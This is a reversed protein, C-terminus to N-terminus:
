PKATGVAGASKTSGAGATHATRTEPRTTPLTAPVTIGASDRLTKAEKARGTRDLLDALDSATSKSLWDRPGSKKREAALADRLIPEAEAYKGQAVLTSGLGSNVMPLLEGLSARYIKLLERFLKEAEEPKNQRQLLKALNYLDSGIYPNGVALRKRDIELAERDMAVAEDLNSPSVLYLLYALQSLSYAIAPDGVPFAKRNIALAERLMPEAEVVRKQSQLCLGLSMLSKAIEPHGSPFAGRNIALAERFMPEAEAQKNQTELCAGLHTLATAIDPHGAPLVKRDIDLAERCLPEAEAWRKQDKLLDGLSDLDKVLGIYSAPLDKRDIAVAERLLSEAEATKNQPILSWTLDRLSDAIAPHGAPLAKRNLALAERLLPEAEKGGKWHAVFRGLVSLSRAIGPHGAKQSVDVAERFLAEAEDQKGKSYLTIIALYNLADALTDQGAPSAKRGIDVAERVLPEAEAMRNQEILLRGLDNLVLAILPDTAPLAKREIELAEHYLREAEAPKHVIQMLVALSGLSKGIDVHGAPLAQRRIALAKRLHPEAEDYRALSVFANGIASRLSAETVPDLKTGGADLQKVAEEVAQVVTVKDGLVKNPDASNLMNTLFDNISTAIREQKQAEDRQQDAAQKQKEAAARQEVAAQKQIEAEARQSRADSLALETKHQEVRIGHVYLAIATVALTLVVAVTSVMARNRKVFKRLRYNAGPPCAEVPEDSLHRGVDRALEGASEYRRTRDKELSKMVIWDLEGRVLQSLKRPEASRNAAITTLPEGLTSLRTSPKPPDVERIIRQIEGYAASYLERPDFPTTGTLLEYLLVGLSYIDSRTDIDLGSMEAQEPSMYAPTGIMQRFETFLTKETLQSQTAKAIGFDILKPVPKGDHLTVLVNSPKIDRHIIGKQHAHQLANCVPVFLELRAETALKNTDCYQTIPIGRVLEMVFYPRGTATAGADFIKAINPHDMMALAQREAEFRTIVQRTDMGLKIIKLAVRRRVPQEQEAM